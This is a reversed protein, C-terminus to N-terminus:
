ITSVFGVFKKFLFDCIKDNEEILEAIRNRGQLQEPMAEGTEKEIEERLGQDIKFWSGAQTFLEYIEMMDVIEMSKWISKGGIAGHKIPYEVIISSNENMSKNIKVRAIHGIFKNKIKDYKLKSDEFIMQDKGHKLFELTVNSQHNTANGGSYSERRTPKYKDAPIDARKQSIFLVMHGYESIPLAMHKFFVSMIVPGGAVMSAEEFGKEKDKKRIMTDLSDIIIFYEVNEQNVEIMQKIWSLVLEFVNCKLVFCTGEEWEEPTEVFRIGSRRKVKGHLRGECKVYLGKRKRKSKTNLANKMVELAESTKGGESDGCFRHIGPGLQVESDLNLSGTSIIYDIEDSGDNYHEKKNNNLFSALQEQSTIVKKEKAQKKKAAM